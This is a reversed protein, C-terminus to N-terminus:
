ADTRTTAGGADAPLEDGGGGPVPVQHAMRYDEEDLCRRVRASLVGICGELADAARQMRDQQIALKRM